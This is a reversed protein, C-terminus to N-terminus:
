SEFPNQLVYDKIYDPILRRLGAPLKRFVDGNPNTNLLAFQKKDIIDKIDADTLYSKFFNKANQFHEPPPLYRSDFKDFADNLLEERTKIYPILGFAKLLTEWITIRRDARIAKRLVDLNIYDNSKDFIHEVVYDEAAKQNGSAVLQRLNDDNAM